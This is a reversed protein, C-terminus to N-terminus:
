RSPAAVGRAADPGTAGARARAPAGTGAGLCGGASRRANAMDEARAAVAVRRGARHTAGLARQHGNPGGRDAADSAKKSGQIQASTPGHDEQRAGLAEWRRDDSSCEIGRKRVKGAASGVPWSLQRRGTLSITVPWLRWSYTSDPIGHIFVPCM